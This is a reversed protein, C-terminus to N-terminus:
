DDRDHKKTEKYGGISEMKRRIAEGRLYIDNLSKPPMDYLSSRLKKGKIPDLGASLFGAAKVKDLNTVMGAEEKFRALYDGLEENPRQRCHILTETDKKRRCLHSYHRLFKRKVQEYSGISRPRLSRYWMSAPGKLYTKFVKCLMIDCHGMGTMFSEYKKCHDEPNGKGNFEHM